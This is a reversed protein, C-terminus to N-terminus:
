TESRSCETNKQSSTLTLKKSIKTQALIFHYFLAYPRPLLAMFNQQYFIRQQFVHVQFELSLMLGM